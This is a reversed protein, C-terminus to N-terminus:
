AFSSLNVSCVCFGCRLIRRSSVRNISGLISMLLMSLSRMSCHWFSSISRSV